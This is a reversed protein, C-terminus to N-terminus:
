DDDGDDGDDLDPVPAVPPVPPQPAQERPQLASLPKGADGPAGRMVAGGDHISKVINQPSGWYTVAGGNRISVALNTRATVLVRGGESVAAAVSAGPIARADVIGGDAVAAAVSDQVPFAGEARVIGGDNVALGLISPTVIEVELRYDRPCRVFCNDIVLTHDRMVFRTYQLSGQILTVRQTAGHRVTVHGGDDLQVAKFAPVSVTEAANTGAPVLFAAIGLTALTLRM